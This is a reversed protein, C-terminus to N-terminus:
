HLTSSIHFFLSFESRNGIAVFRGEPLYVHNKEFTAIKQQPFRRM